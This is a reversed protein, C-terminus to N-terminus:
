FALTASDREKSPSKDGFLSKVVKFKARILTLQKVFDQSKQNTRPFSDILAELSELSRKARESLAIEGAEFLHRWAVLCGRYVGLEEGLTKGAKLGLAMGEEHGLRAGHKLGQSAGWAM